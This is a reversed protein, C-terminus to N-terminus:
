SQWIAFFAGAPDRFFAVGGEEFRRDEILEGGNELAAAISADLDAVIFYPMWFPPIGVNPGRSHCIGAVGDDSGPPMMSYDAYDEVPVEESQWGVVKSYFDRLASADPVTLDLWALSGPAPADEM